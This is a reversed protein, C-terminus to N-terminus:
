TCSCPPGPVAPGPCSSWCVSLLHAPSPFSVERPGESTSLSALLVYGERGVTGAQGPVKAGRRALRGSWLTRGHLNLAQGSFPAAAPPFQASSDLSHKNVTDGGLRGPPAAPSKRLPPVLGEGPVRGLREPGARLARGEGATAEAPSQVCSLCMAPASPVGHPGSGAGGVRTAKPPGTLGM